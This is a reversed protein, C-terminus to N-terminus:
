SLLKKKQINEKNVMGLEDLDIAVNQYAVQIRSDEAIQQDQCVQYVPNVPLM